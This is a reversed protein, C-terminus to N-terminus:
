EDQDSRDSVAKATRLYRVDINLKPSHEKPSEWGTDACLSDTKASFM